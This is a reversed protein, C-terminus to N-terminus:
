HKAYFERVASAIFWFPTSTTTLKTAEPANLIDRVASSPTPPNLSKLVAACAEDFNEEDPSGSRVYSDRFEQKEKYSDPVKGDHDKKWQELYHLLLCIYPIHAKDHGSMGAM